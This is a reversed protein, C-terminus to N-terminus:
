KVEKRTLIAGCTVGDPVCTHSKEGLPVKVQIISPEQKEVPYIVPAVDPEVKQKGVDSLVYALAGILALLIVFLSVDTKNWNM